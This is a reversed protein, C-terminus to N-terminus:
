GRVMERYAELPDGEYPHYSRLVAREEDFDIEGVAPNTIRGGDPLVFTASGEVKLQEWGRRAEEIVQAKFRGSDWDERFRDLDLNTEAAAEEVVAMIEHRLSLCRNQAFYAHRLAWSMAFAATDGQDQACAQAEYAPWYTVPWEWEPRDWLKWPLGPEIRQFLEYEAEYLPKPYAQRHAPPKQAAM